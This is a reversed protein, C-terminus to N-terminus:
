KKDTLIVFVRQVRAPASRLEIVPKIMLMVSPAAIYFIGFLIVGFFM